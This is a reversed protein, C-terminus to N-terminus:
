TILIYGLGKIIQIWMMLPQSEIINNFIKESFIIWFGSILAYTITIKLANNKSKNDGYLLSEIYRGQNEIKMKKLTSKNLDIKENVQKGGIIM